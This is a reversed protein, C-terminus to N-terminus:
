GPSPRSRASPQTPGTTNTSTSGDQCPKAAPPRPSTTSPSRGGPLWRATSGNSRATPRRATPAQRKKAVIQLEACAERWAHSRYAPGNDSLVREVTVGRAAFWSVARRLVGIATTATEDDHIEAYAVRSHDDIVTHVFATGM